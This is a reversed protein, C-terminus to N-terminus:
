IPEVVLALNGRKIGAPADVYGVGAYGVAGFPNANGASDCLTLGSGITHVSGTGDSVVNGTVTVMYTGPNQNTFLCLGQSGMAGARPEFGLGFNVNGSLKTLEPVYVSVEASGISEREGPKGDTAASAPVSPSIYLVLM